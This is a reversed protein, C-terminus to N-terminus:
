RWELSLDGGLRSIGIELRRTVGSRFTGSIRRSRTNDDWKVQVRVEHRGPTVKLTEEVVGKRLEFFLVKRTVQADLEEKAVLQGDLFVKVTGNDLRHEMRLSLRAPAPKSGTRPSPTATPRPKPTPSEALSAPPPSPVTSEVVPPPTTPPIPTAPEAIVTPPPPLPPPLADPTPGPALIVALVEALPDDPRLSLYYAALGGFLLVLALLRFGHRRPRPRAPAKEEVVPQLELEVLSPEPASSAVTGEAPPPPTWGARHRPTRAKLVDDLDEAMTRGDPYRDAPEKALARALLYDVAEPLEPVLATAVRPDHDAVRNMIRAVSEAAFARTGTLLTYLVSGLSFLDSRGDLKQGQVQEPSMFLPTGVSQGAVTLDAGAEIKALGFDMIKPEGSPLVMINAPKIDRHIVGQAHAYHLARAVAAVIELAKRWPLRGEESTMEALTRGHLLELALYLMGTQPDRGVDHVVVIGPHSLHGAIRAESLFRKEFTEKDADTVAFLLRVVKLAVLRHLSPDLAEYVVGMMGRGLERRIEYRGIRAPVSEPSM